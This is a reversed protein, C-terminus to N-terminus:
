RSRRRERRPRARRSSSRSSSSRGSALPQRPVSRIRSRHRRDLRRHSRRRCRLTRSAQLHHRSRNFSCAQAVIRRLRAEQSVRRRQRACLRTQLRLLFQPPRVLRYPRTPSSPRTPRLRSRLRRRWEPLQERWKLLHRVPLPLLHTPRRPLFPFLGRNPRKPTRGTSCRLRVRALASSLKCRM